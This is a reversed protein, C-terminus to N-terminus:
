LSAQSILDSNARWWAAWAVAPAEPTAERTRGFLSAADDIPEGIRDPMSALDDSISPDAAAQEHIAALQREILTQLELDPTTLQALLAPVLEDMSGSTELTLRGDNRLVRLAAGNNPAPALTPNAPKPSTQALQPAQRPPRVVSTNDRRTRALAQMGAGIGHSATRLAAALPATDVSWLPGRIVEVPVEVPVEVRVEVPVEVRHEVPVKVIREVVQPTIPLAQISLEGTASRSIAIGGSEHSEGRQLSVIEQNMFIASAQQDNAPQGGFGFVLWMFLSAAAAGALTALLLPRTRYENRPATATVAGDVAALTAAHLEKSTERPTVNRLMGVASQFSAWNERCSACNAVHADFAEREHDQLDGDFRASCLDDIHKCNM